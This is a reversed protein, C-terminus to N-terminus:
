FLFLNIYVFYFPFFFTFIRKDFRFFQPFETATWHNPSEAKMATPRPESGLPPVLIWTEGAVLFFFPFFNLVRSM